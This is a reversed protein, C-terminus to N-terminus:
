RLLKFNYKIKLTGILTQFKIQFKSHYIDISLEFIM